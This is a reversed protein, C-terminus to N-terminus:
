AAADNEVRLAVDVHSPDPMGFLSMRPNECTNEQYASISDDDHSESTAAFLVTASPMGRQAVGSWRKSHLEPTHEAVDSPTPQNDTSSDGIPSGSLYSTRNAFFTSQREGFLPNRRKVSGIRHSGDIDQSRASAHNSPEEASSHEKESSDTSFTNRTRKASFLSAAAAAVTMKQEARPNTDFHAASAQTSTADPNGGDNQEHWQGESNSVPVGSDESNCEEEIQGPLTVNNERKATRLVTAVGGAAFPLLQAGAMDADTARPAPAMTGFKTPEASEILDALGLNAATSATSATSMNSETVEGFSTDSVQEGPQLYEASDMEDDPLFPSHVPVLSSYRRSVRRSAHRVSPESTNPVVDAADKATSRRRRRIFGAGLLVLLLLCLFALANSGSKNAKSSNKPDDEDTLGAGSPNTTASVPTTDQGGTLPPLPPDTPAATPAVTAATPSNTTCQVCRVSSCQDPKTQVFADANSYVRCMGTQANFQYGVCAPSGTCVTQCSALTLQESEVFMGSGNTATQCCGSPLIEFCGATSLLTGATTPAATPPTTPSQTTPAPTTTTWDDSSCNLTNTHSVIQLSGACSCSM